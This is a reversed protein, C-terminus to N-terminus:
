VVVDEEGRSVVIEEADELRRIINVIRQQAEEVTRLKVPGSVAIEDRLMEAARSSLNKFIHNKLQESSGKLAVSLDKSDVERLVRQLSRDDLSIIDEFVFMLKRVEEALEPSVEELTELIGKETGRDVNSLVKVLFETGGVSTYDQSLVTSLKKKLVDEVSAVVEPPTRDMVAIRIAVDAQQEASLSSLISAAQNAPLHSLILAITQPHENQIFSVLQAPDTEKIFDFPHPRRITAMRAIIEEAKQRGVAQTLMDRAYEVGGSTIFNRALATTYCEELVEDKLEESMKEMSVVELTLREMDDEKLHKLVQASLEPGLAILLAAAKQKGTLRQRSATTM